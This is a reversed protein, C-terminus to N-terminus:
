QQPAQSFNDVLNETEVSEIFQHMEDDSKKNDIESEIKITPEQGDSYNSQDQLLGIQIRRVIEDLELSLREHKELLTTM